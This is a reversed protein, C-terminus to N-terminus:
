KASDFYDKIYDKSDLIGNETNDYSRTEMDSLEFKSGKIDAYNTNIDVTKVTKEFLASYIRGSSTIKSTRSMEGGIAAVYYDSALSDKDYLVVVLEDSGESKVSYWIATCEDNAQMRAVAYVFSKADYTFAAPMHRSFNQNTIDLIHYSGVSDTSILGPRVDTVNSYIAGLSIGSPKVDPVDASTDAVSDTSTNKAGPSCAILLAIALLAAFYKM